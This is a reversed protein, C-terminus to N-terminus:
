QTQSVTTLKLKHLLSTDEKDFIKVLQDWINQAPQAADIRRLIGGKQYYETIPSTQKHYTKLRNKLTDKNDDSRHILPEGTVDDVMDVKPPRFNKHYTRGSDPHVLRGLIRSVLLKDDIALEVAHDLNQHREALM